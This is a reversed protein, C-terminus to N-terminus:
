VVNFHLSLIEPNGTEGHLVATSTFFYLAAQNSAKETFHRGFDDFDTL